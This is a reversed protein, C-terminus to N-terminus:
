KRLILKAAITVVNDEWGKEALERITTKIDDPSILMWGKKMCFERVQNEENPYIKGAALAYKLRTKENILGKALYGERLRETVIEQFTEDTLLRYRRSKQSIGSFRVGPSDLFSKVEILLLFNEKVNLAVLDIEPRPMSPLGIDRKDQKTIDVKVSQRVWFGKEELLLAVINEFADM